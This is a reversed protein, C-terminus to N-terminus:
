SVVQALHSGNQDSSRTESREKAGYVCRLSEVDLPQFTQTEAPIPGEYRFLNLLAVLAFVLAEV